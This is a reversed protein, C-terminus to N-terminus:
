ATGYVLDRVQHHRPLAAPEVRIVRIGAAQLCQETFRANEAQAADQPGDRSVMVTAIVELQRTCVILDLKFQALRRAKQEREYGRLSDAIEVVDGLPVNAFIEHDPLGSRFVFYLLTDPQGLLRPKRCYGAVPVPAPAPATTVPPPAEPVTAVPAAAAAGRNVKLDAYLAEFQKAREANRQAKKRRYSWAIGAILAVWILGIVYWM